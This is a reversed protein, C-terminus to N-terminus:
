MKFILSLYFHYHSFKVLFIVEAKPVQFKMMGTMYFM